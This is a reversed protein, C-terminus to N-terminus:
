NNLTVVKMCLHKLNSVVDLDESGPGQKLLVLVLYQGKLVV